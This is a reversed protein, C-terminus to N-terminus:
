ETKFTSTKQGLIKYQVVDTRLLSLLIIAAMAMPLGAAEILCYDGEEARMKM